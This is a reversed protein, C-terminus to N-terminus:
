KLGFRNHQWFWQNPYERIWREYNNYIIQTIQESSKNEPFIPTDIKLVFNLKTRDDRIVRGMIIPCNFKVALEGATNAAKVKQNFFDVEVGDSSKQDLLIGLRGGSKLHKVIDKVGTKDGKSIIFNTYKNRMRQILKEVYPNNAKRYILATNSNLALLMRSAIEWNGYHASVMIFGTGNEKAKAEALEINEIGSVACLEHIKDNNYSSIHPLEGSTRGLNEWSQSAINLVEKEPKEPFCLKIGDIATQNSKHFKGIIPLFNGILFSSLSLPIIRFLFYIPLVLALELLHKFKLLLPYKKIIRLM